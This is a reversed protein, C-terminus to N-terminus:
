NTAEALELCEALLKKYAPEYFEWSKGATSKAMHLMAIAQRAKKQKLYCIAINNYAAFVMEPANESLIVIAEQYKAIALEYEGLDQLASAMLYKCTGDLPDLRTAEKLNAVAEATRGLGILAVAKMEHATSSRPVAVLLRNAISLLAEWDSSNQLLFSLRSLSPVFDHKLGLSLELHRRAEQIYPSNAYDASFEKQSMHAMGLIWHVLHLHSEPLSKIAENAVDIVVQPESAIKDRCVALRGITERSESKMEYALEELALWAQGKEHLISLGEAVSRQRSFPEQIFKRVEGQRIAFNINQGESSYSVVVGVVERSSDLVPGGSSGGSIPATFQMLSMENNNRFGSVVGVSLSSRYDQPSGIVFIDDGVQPVSESLKLSPIRHELILAEKNESSSISSLEPATHPVSAVLIALDLSKNEHLVSSADGRRGDSAIVEIAAANEIVHYNTLLYVYQSQLHTFDFNDVSAELLKDIKALESTIVFGSGVGIERGSENMVSLTFVADKSEEYITSASYKSTEAGLTDSKKSESQKDIDRSFTPPQPSSPRCAVFM